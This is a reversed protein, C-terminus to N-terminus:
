SEENLIRFTPLPYEKARPMPVTIVTLGSRINDVPTEVIRALIGVGEDLQVEALLIPVDKEFAPDNPRHVISYSIIKGQGSATVFELDTRGSFPCIPRPYLFCRKEQASRQLVIEGRERWAQLFEFNDVDEIPQPYDHQTM